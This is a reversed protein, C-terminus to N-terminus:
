KGNIIKEFFHKFKPEILEYSLNDFNPEETIFEDHMSKYAYWIIDNTNYKVYIGFVPINYISALHVISTDPTFLFDLKSVLASIRTFKNSYYIPIKSGSIDYATKIEKPTTIILINVNYKQLFDILASFRNIGWFRSRNGAIINIGILPKTESYAQGLFENVNEIDDKTYEYKINLEEKNYSLNFLKAIETIREVVHFKSSDLREITKSYLNLYNKRLGFVLSDSVMSLLFSVTASTDDHLDVVCDYKEINLIKKYKKYGTLGKNFVYTKDIFSQGSFVFYNKKDALVHIILNLKSKLLFLLPTTVLADGIRNLRIFLVKKNTFDEISNVSNKKRHYKLFLYLIIRKLLIELKKMM